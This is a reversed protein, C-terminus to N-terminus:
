AAALERLMEPEVKELSEADSMKTSRPLRPQSIHDIGAIGAWLWLILNPFPYSLPSLNAVVLFPIAICLLGVRWKRLEPPGRRFIGGGVASLFAWLWLLCGPIGLEAAHSLIVSHVELGEGTLPITESQRLYADGRTEFTEWGIGFVPHAEIAHLAALDTNERDWVPSASDFRTVVKAHLSPVTFITIATFGAVLPLIIFAHRRTSPHAFLGIIVALAGGIWISRTLTMIAGLACLVVVLLSTMRAIRSTWMTTGLAAATGCMIMALGDAEAEVFPGRARGFHIGINPNRIYAPEVYRLLGSVEMIATVSLYAGLIVLTGILLRRRREDGFLLPALLFATFPLIGLRDVLAYFGDHSTLTHAWIASIITWATVVLLLLHIPRLVIRRDSLCRRGGLIMALFAGLMVVRDLPVPIGMYSWAGSFVELAAGVCFLITPAVRGSLYIVAVVFLLAGVFLIVGSFTPHTLFHSIHHV